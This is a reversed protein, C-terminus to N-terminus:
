RTPLLRFGSDFESFFRTVLTLYFVIIKIEVQELHILCLAATGIRV